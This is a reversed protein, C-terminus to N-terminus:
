PFYLLIVMPPQEECSFCIIVNMVGGEVNKNSSRINGMSGMVWDAADGVGHVDRVDQVRPAWVAAQQDVDAAQPELAAARLRCVPLHWRPDRQGVPQQRAARHGGSATRWVPRTVARRAMRGPFAPPPHARPAGRAVGAPGVVM